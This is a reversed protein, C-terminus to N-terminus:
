GAKQKATIAIAAMQSLSSRWEEYEEAVQASDLGIRDLGRLIRPPLRRHYATEAYTLDNYTLNMAVAADGRNLGLRERAKIIPNM